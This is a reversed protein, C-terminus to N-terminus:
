KKMSAMCKDFCSMCTKKVEKVEEEIIEPPPKKTIKDWGKKIGEFPKFEAM